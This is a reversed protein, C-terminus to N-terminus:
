VEKTENNRTEIDLNEEAENSKDSKVEEIVRIMESTVVPEFWSAPCDEWRELLTNYVLAVISLGNSLKSPALVISGIYLRGKTIGSRQTNVKCLLTM